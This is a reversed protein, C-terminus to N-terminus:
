EHVQCWLIAFHTKEEIKDVCVDEFAYDYVMHIQSTGTPTKYNLINVMIKYKANCRTKSQSYRRGNNIEHEGISKNNNNLLLKHM